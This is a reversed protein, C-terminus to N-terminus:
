EIGGPAIWSHYPVIRVLPARALYLFAAFYLVAAMVVGCAALRRLRVNEIGRVLGPILFIHGASMYYGVRSIEPVFSCFTYLLFAFYNLRFCFELQRDGEVCKKYLILSLILVATIRIINMVSTGGTLYSTGEYSSYLRVILKLYLGRLVLGSAAFATILAYHWRKLPLAALIYIPIVILVSKHFTATVLIMVAFKLYERRLVYKMSYLAVAWALYYRVTNLSQFYFSLTMFLFFSFLFDRSQERVAILMFAVTVLAYVALIQIPAEGGFIFQLIHVSINFGIETPVVQKLPILHFFEEYRTYDNGVRYRLASLGFLLLFIALLWLGSLLEGRSVNGCSFCEGSVAGGSLGEGSVAGSSLGEGSVADGSVDGGRDETRNLKLRNGPGVGAAMLVTLVTVIIYPIM